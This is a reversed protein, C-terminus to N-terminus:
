CLSAAISAQTAFVALQGAFRRFAFAFKRQLIHRGDDDGTKRGADVAFKKQFGGLVADREDDAFRELRDAQHQRGIAGRVRNKGAGHEVERRAGPRVQPLLRNVGFALILERQRFVDRRLVLPQVFQALRGKAFLRVLLRNAGLHEPLNKAPRQVILIKDAVPSAAPQIMKQIVAVRHQKGRHQLFQEADPKIRCKANRVDRAFAARRQRIIQHLREPGAHVPANDLPHFLMRVRLFPFDGLFKALPHRAKRQLAHIIQIQRQFNLAHM